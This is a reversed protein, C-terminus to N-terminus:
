RTLVKLVDPSSQLCSLVEGPTQLSHQLVRSCLQLLLPCATCASTISRLTDM